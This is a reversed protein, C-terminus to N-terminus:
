KGLVMHRLGSELSIPPAWGLSEQADSIDLQFSSVLREVEAKRGSAYSCARLLCVPFHILTVSREMVRAILRLLDPTSIDEGDSAFFIKGSASPETTCKTILNALNDVSILSRKNNIAGLPLPIGSRVLSFLRSFNGKAGSGYVVPPRVVVVEMGTRASIEWLAQEAEWKSISYADTPNAKSLATFPCNLETKEGCVKASSVYVFRRIHNAAAQEALRRTGEVNVRRCVMLAENKSEGLVDAKGACHVICDVDGLAEAWCDITAIDGIAVRSNSLLTVDGSGGGRMVDRVTFSQSLLAKRVAAGIFGSGGTLLIM